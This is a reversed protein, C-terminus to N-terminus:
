LTAQRMRQLRSCKKTGGLTAGLEGKKVGHWTRLQLHHKRVINLLNVCAKAEGQVRRGAIGAPGQM